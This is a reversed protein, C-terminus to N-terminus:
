KRRRKLLAALGAGLALMTAPEPVAQVAAQGLIQHTRRTPHIDDYFAFQDVNPAVVGNVLAASTVNTFGFAGPNNRIEAFKAAVDFEYITTGALSTRLGQIRQKLNTNHAITRDNFVQENATGVHRPTWGFLPLNPILFKRAGRAHLAEVAAAINSSPITMNTEGFNIDNAGAFIVFLDNSTITPNASLYQGVQTRMNPFFFPASGFTGTSSTAGGFAFNTGGATSRSLPLNLGNALHEVWLIGNSWRGNFYNPGPFLGFTSASVNGQDSLSDGFVVMRNFQASAFSASALALIWLAHKM